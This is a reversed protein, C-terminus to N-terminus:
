TQTFNICVMTLDAMTETGTEELIIVMVMIVTSDETSDTSQMSPSTLHPTLDTAMTPCPRHHSGLCVRTFCPHCTLESTGTSMCMPSETLLTTSQSRGLRRRHHNCLKTQSGGQLRLELGGQITLRRSSLDLPTLHTRKRRGGRKQGALVKVRLFQHPLGFVM